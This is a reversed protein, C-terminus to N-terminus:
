RSRDLNNFPAKALDTWDSGGIEVWPWGKMGRYRRGEREIRKDGVFLPSLFIKFIVMRSLPLTSSRLGGSAIQLKFTYRTSAHFKRSRIEVDHLFSNLKFFRYIGKDM